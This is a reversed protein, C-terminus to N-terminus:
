LEIEDDQIIDGIPNIKVVQIFGVGEEIGIARINVDFKKAIKILEDTIVNWKTGCNIEIWEPDTDSTYIENCYAYNDKTYKEIETIEIKLFNKGDKPTIKLKTDCINAM